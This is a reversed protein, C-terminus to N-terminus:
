PKGGKRGRRVEAVLENVSRVIEQLLEAQDKSLAGVSRVEEALDALASSFDARSAQDRAGAAKVEELTVDQTKSLEASHADARIITALHASRLEGYLYRLAGVFAAVCAVASSALAAIWEGPVEVALPTM